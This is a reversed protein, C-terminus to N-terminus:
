RGGRQPRAAAAGRQVKTGRAPAEAAPAARRRQPVPAEEEQEAQQRGRRAAPGPQAKGAKAGKGSQVKGGRRQPAEEEARAAYDWTIAEAVEEKKEILKEFIEADDFQELAKFKLKFQSDKDPVTKVESIFSFPPRKTTKHLKDVFASFEAVSTVPVNVYIPEANELDEVDDASILALRRLNKCAKGRGTEASGWENHPCSDCDGSQPEIAKAAPVMEDKGHAYAYCIPPQPNAPDFKEGGYYANFKVHDIIVAEIRNDEFEAGSLSMIGGQLSVVKGAAREESASAEEAYQALKEEWAVLSKGPKKKAVM